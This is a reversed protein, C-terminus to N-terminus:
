AMHRNARVDAGAGDGAILTAHTRAGRSEAQALIHHATPQLHARAGPQHGKVTPQAAQAAGLGLMAAAAIALTFHRM